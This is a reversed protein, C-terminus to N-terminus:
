LKKGIGLIQRERIWRLKSNEREKILPAILNSLKKLLSSEWLIPLQKFYEIKIEKFGSVEYLNNMTIKTFPTKHTWDDFFKHTQVEWDPTLTILVGGKKLVRMSEKFFIEPNYLHEVFSKSFVVDFCEDVFPLKEKEINNKFIKLKPYENGASELLDTGRVKIGIKRFEELLDGRGCGTELLFKKNSIIYNKYLYQALLNPYKTKPKNKRSYITSLYDM